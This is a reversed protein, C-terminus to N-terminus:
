GKGFVGEHSHQGGDFLPLKIVNDRCAGGTTLHGAQQPGCPNSLIAHNYSCYAITTGFGARFFTFMHLIMLSGRTQSEWVHQGDDIRGAEGALRPWRWRKKARDAGM